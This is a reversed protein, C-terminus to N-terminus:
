VAAWRCVWSPPSCSASRCRHSSSSMADHSTSLEIRESRTWNSSQHRCHACFVHRLRESSRRRATCPWKPSARPPLPASAASRLRSSTKRTPM